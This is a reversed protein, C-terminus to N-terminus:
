EGAMRHTQGLGAEKLALRREAATIYDRTIPLADVRKVLQLQFVVLGQHRFGAESGALYFEWMRAFEEDKLDVARDRQAMFRERWAKLTEAYHLRLTEVDSVILGAREVAPLVESLAPFYGGPFIYRAIFPNTFGPGDTRGISHVLAVGDNKLQRAISNFYTQFHNVGVHEFMGVSVIRDFQEKLHRYDEIRFEVRSELGEAAARRSAIAHQQDSLTIGTVNADCIKALYLALGGWGSGIDLVKHGPEVALKAALHRKKALQAEELDAGPTFYGCSYQRDSDLFLDYISGDIDYHHRVNRRSRWAPNFQAIRRAVMRMPDLGNVGKSFPTAELSEMLLAIFDYANGREITLTGRMYAEGLALKPDFAIAREAARDTIRVTVHPPSGDGFTFARGAPDIVVLDGKVVARKLVLRLVSFM